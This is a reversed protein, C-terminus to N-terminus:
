CDNLFSFYKLIKFNKQSLTVINQCSKIESYSFPFDDFDVNPSLIFIDM